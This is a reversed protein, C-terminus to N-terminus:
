TRMPDFGVGNLIQGVPHVDTRGAIGEQQILDQRLQVLFAQQLRHPFGPPEISGAPPMPPGGELQGFGGVVQHGPTQGAKRRFGEVDQLDQRHGALGQRGEDKGIKGANGTLAIGVQHIVQSRPAQDDFRGATLHRQRVVQQTHGDELTQAIEVPPVQVALKRLRQLRM